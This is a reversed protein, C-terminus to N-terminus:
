EGHARLPLSSSLSFISITWCTMSLQASDASVEHPNVTDSLTQTEDHFWLTYKCRYVLRVVVYVQVHM